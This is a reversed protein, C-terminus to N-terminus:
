QKKEGLLWASAYEPNNLRFQNLFNEATGKDSFRRAYVRARGEKEIIGAFRFIGGRGQRKLWEQAMGKEPFSSIIVYYTHGAVKKAKKATKPKEPAYPEQNAVNEEVKLEKESTETEAPKEKIEKTKAAKEARNIKVPTPKAEEVVEEKREVEPIPENLVPLTEDIYQEEKPEDKTPEDKDPASLYNHLLFAEQSNTGPLNGAPKSLLLMFLCAAAGVLFNRFSNRPLRINIFEEDKRRRTHHETHATKRHRKDLTPFSFATLGYADPIFFNKNETRFVLQGQENKWM